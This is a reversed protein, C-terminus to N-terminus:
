AWRYQAGGNGHEIPDTGSADPKDGLGAQLERLQRVLDESRKQESELHAAQETLKAAV